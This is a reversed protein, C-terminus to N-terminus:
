QCILGMIKSGGGFLGVRAHKSVKRKFIDLIIVNPFFVFLVGGNKNHNMDLANTGLSFIWSLQKVSNWNKKIIYFFKSIQYEGVYETNILQLTTHGIEQFCFVEFDFAGM